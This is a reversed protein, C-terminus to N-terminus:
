SQVQRDSDDSLRDAALKLLEPAASLYWYTYRPERHGLYTSLFPLRAHVDVDVGSRYWGVLVKVTFSHRLDHLRPTRAAGIGIGTQHCLARFDRQVTPYLLRKGTLTVFFSETTLQRHLHDRRTAYARLAAVTGVQLPVLRTKGFKSERILLVGGGWDVDARNLRLAEGIRLGTAALLGILTRYTLGPLRPGFSSEANLMLASINEDTFIFPPRWRQRSPLLGLPPVQNTPDIGFLYRAFGRVAMMRRPCVTSGQPAEPLQCWTLANEITVRSQGTDDLWAVFRPLLRVADAIKYGLNHRLELYDQLAEQMTTM